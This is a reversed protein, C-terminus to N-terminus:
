CGCIRVAFAHGVQAVVFGLGGRGMRLSEGAVSPPRVKNNSSVHKQLPPPPDRSPRHPGDSSDSESDLSLSHSLPVGVNALQAPVGVAGM